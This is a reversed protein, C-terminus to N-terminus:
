ARAPRVGLGHVVLGEELIAPLYHDMFAAGARLSTWM